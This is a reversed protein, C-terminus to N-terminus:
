GPMIARLALHTPLYVCVPFFAMLLVLYVWPAVWTQPEKGPGFVWNINESPDTVFFCLPLVACALLLIQTM